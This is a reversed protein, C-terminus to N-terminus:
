ETRLNKVPNARAAKIAQVSMTLVAVALVVVASIVFVLWHIQIRYAFDQLWGNMAYWAVPTAIVSAILVPKLFEKMLETTISSVNAGLVKRIGIERVRQQISYLSLGLIGMCAIFIALASFYSFITGLKKESAYMANLTEDLFNYEFFQNPYATKFSKEVADIANSGVSGNFRVYLYQFRGPFYHMVLPQVPTKLPTINFDQVVGIVKGTKLVVNPQVWQFTKGIAEDANRWGLKKVAEENLVFGETKDTAHTTTFDRGAIIKMQMTRIFDNDTFLMQMSSSKSLDAAGDNVLNIPINASPVSAAMAVSTVSPNNLLAVKLAELKASDSNQPLTIIAVNEKDFGLNKTQLFQLQQYVLVTGAVLAISIAFQFTVLVKRFATGKLSKQFKGKLVEVPKFSSLVTAPYIGALLGVFLVLGVLLLLLPYNTDLHLSLQRQSLQNFLPLAAVAILLALALAIVALLTTEGLFQGILQRREAGVVKRLGVEKARALSRATSLNTFNFCAILLIFAAIGTFVYVYAISGNTGIEGVMQSHLHISTLPQLFIEQKGDAAPNNIIYKNVFGAFKKELAAKSANSNVLVYSQFMHFSWMHSLDGLTQLSLLANFTFHSNAPVDDAVATVQVTLNRGFSNIELTKGIPDTAGFYKKAGKKTLVISNPQELAQRVNGRVLSFSFVDFFTSDGYLLNSEYYHQEGPQGVTAKEDKLLRVFNKIEPYDKKMLPAWPAPTVALNAKGNPGDMVSTLRYINQARSNFKDYSTEHQIFLAMLICCALGTSLGLINIGSFLRAKWINRWAIKLYNKFMASTKNKRQDFAM